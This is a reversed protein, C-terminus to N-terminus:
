KDALMMKVEELERKREQYEELFQVYDGRSQFEETILSLDLWDPPRKDFVYRLSSFRYTRWYRPNMHIYRGIHILYSDQDIAKAKYRSEFLSGVRRYKLNFYKGYSTMLSRMFKQISHADDGQFLLLHLHNPMLCYAHLGVEDRYHPYAVGTKSFVQKQGLYREILALFYQRDRDELFIRQKNSGRTYVHYYTRPVYSKLTNRQPM